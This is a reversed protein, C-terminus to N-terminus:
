FCFMMGASMVVMVLRIVAKRVSFRSSATVVSTRPESRWFIASTIAVVASWVSKSESEAHRLSNLLSDETMVLRLIPESSRLM